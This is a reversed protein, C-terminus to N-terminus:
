KSDEQKETTEEWWLEHTKGDKMKFLHPYTVKMYKLAEGWEKRMEEATKKM